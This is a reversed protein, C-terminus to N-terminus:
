FRLSFYSAASCGAFLVASWVANTIYQGRLKAIKLAGRCYWMQWATYLLLAAALAGWAVGFLHMLDSLM